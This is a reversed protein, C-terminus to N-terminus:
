LDQFVSHLFIKCIHSYPTSIQCEPPQYIFLWEKIFCVNPSKDNTNQSTITLTAGGGGGKM